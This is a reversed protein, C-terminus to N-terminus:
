YNAQEDWGTLTIKGVTLGSEIDTHAQRMTQANIPSYTKQAIVQLKEAQYLDSLHTLIEHQTIMEDTQYYSKSFMWEWSFSARKRKLDQLDIPKKNEGIAVIHGDPKILESIAQFHLDLSNLNLCYDVYQYGLDRVQRVVDQHHDIIYDAGLQKVWSISAPKSATAIVTLGALKALQIAISGVGGAGNIILLVKGENGTLPLRMQEFLAEYATLGVLPIAAAQSTPLNSPALGVLREDIVQQAANSGSKTFDGAYWVRDGIDFLSVQDGKGIVRGVADWGIIKPSLSTDDQGDRRVFTDVPNVSIGDIEVLLEHDKAVPQEIDIDIFSDKEIIPLHKMFGVAKIKKTM